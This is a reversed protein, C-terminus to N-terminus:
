ITLEDLYMAFVDLEEETLDEYRICEPGCNIGAGGDIEALKDNIHGCAPPLDRIEIWDDKGEVHVEADMVLDWFCLEWAEKSVNDPSDGPYSVQESDDRSFIYRSMLEARDTGQIDRKGAQSSITGSISGSVSGSMISATISYKLFKKTELSLGASSRVSATESRMTAAIPANSSLNTKRLIRQNKVANRVLTSVAARIGSSVGSKIATGIFGAEAPQEFAVMAMLLPLITSEPRM